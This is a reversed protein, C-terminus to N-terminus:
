RKPLYINRFFFWVVTCFRQPTGATATKMKRAAGTSGDPKGSGIRRHPRLASAFRHQKVVTSPLFGAGTSLHNIGNNIPNWCTEVMWPPAPNRLWGVYTENTEFKLIEPDQHQCNGVTYNRCYETLDETLDPQNYSSCIPRVSFLTIVWKAM